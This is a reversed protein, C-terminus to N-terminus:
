DTTSIDMVSDLCVLTYRWTSAMNFRFIYVASVLLISYTQSRFQFLHDSRSADYYYEM